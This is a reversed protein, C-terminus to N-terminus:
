SHYQLMSNNVMDILSTASLTKVKVTAVGSGMVLVVFVCETYM